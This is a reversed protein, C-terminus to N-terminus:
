LRGRERLISSVAAYISHVYHQAHLPYVDYFSVTAGLAELNGVAEPERALENPLVVGLVQDKRLAIPHETQLEIATGRDDLAETRDNYLELLAAIEQHRPLLAHEREFADRSVPRGRLYDGNERFFLAVMRGIAQPSADLEFRSLPFSRVYDPMRSAFSGSDFPMARKFPLGDPRDFVFVIPLQWTKAQRETRWKYAPRGVFCYLLDEGVYTNCPTPRLQMDGCIDLFFQAKTSHVLPLPDLSPTNTRELFERVKVYRISM